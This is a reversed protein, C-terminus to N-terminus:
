SAKFEVTEHAQALKLPAPDFALEARACFRQVHSIPIAFNVGTTAGGVAVGSVVVGAVKGDRDLVPGGSNGQNLVADLQIRQLEGDKERLSTVKGVNVSIAPSEKRDVALRQGFPFGFAILEDTEAVTNDTALPLWPLDKQGQVRLLALDLGPDTRLVRATVVRATKLGSGLVLNVDTEDRVVHENTLFVGSPNICFASGQVSRFKGMVLATAAKGAKTIKARPVGQGRVSLGVLLLALVAVSSRRVPASVPTD